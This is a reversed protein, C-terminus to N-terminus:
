RRLRCGVTPHNTGAELLLRGGGAGGAAGRVQQKAWPQQYNPNVHTVFLKFVASYVRSVDELKHQMMMCWWWWLVAPRGDAGGASCAGMRGGMVPFPRTPARVQLDEERLLESTNSCARILLETGLQGSVSRSMSAQRSSGLDLDEDVDLVGTASVCCCSFFFPCWSHCYGPM